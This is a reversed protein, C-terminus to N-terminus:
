EKMIPYIEKDGDVNLILVYFGRPIGTLDAYIKGKGESSNFISGSQVSSKILLGMYNYVDVTAQRIDLSSNAEFQLTVKDKIPNPYALSVNFQHKNDVSVIPSQDEAGWYLLRSNYNGGSIYFITSRNPLCILPQITTYQDFGFYNMKYFKYNESNYYHLIASRNSDIDKFHFSGSIWVSSDKDIDFSFIMDGSFENGIKGEDLHHTTFESGDFSTINSKYQLLWLKDDAIRLKHFMAKGNNQKYLAKDYLKRIGSIPNISCLHDNLGYYYLDGKYFVLNDDNASINPYYDQDIYGDLTDKGYFKICKDGDYKIFYMRRVNLWFNGKDDKAISRLEELKFGEEPKPAKYIIDWSVGNFKKFESIGYYDYNDAVYIGGNDEYYVDYLKSKQYDLNILNTDKDRVEIICNAYLMVFDGKSNCKITSIFSASKQAILTDPLLHFDQAQLTIFSIILM